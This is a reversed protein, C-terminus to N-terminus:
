SLSHFIPNMNEFTCVYKFGIEKLLAYAAPFANAVNQSTHADSGTTVVEGGMERFRKLMDVPPNPGVPHNLYSTNLEVGKGEEIVMKFIAEIEDGYTKMDFPAKLLNDHYRCVYGLHGIVNYKKFASISAYIDKLYLSYTEETTHTDYFEIFYPDANDVNHQSCIVFDFAHQEAFLLYDEIKEIYVGIEIGKKAPVPAVAQYSKFKAEYLAMDLVADALNGDTPIDLHETFCIEALGALYAARGLELFPVNGDYSIDSHIHYDFM